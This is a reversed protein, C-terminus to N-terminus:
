RVARADRLGVVLRQLTWFVTGALYYSLQRGRVATRLRGLAPVPATGLTIATTTPVANSWDSTVACKVTGTGDLAVERVV